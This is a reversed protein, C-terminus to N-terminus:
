SEEEGEGGGKGDGREKEVKLGELYGPIQIKNAGNSCM